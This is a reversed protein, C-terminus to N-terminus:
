STSCRVRNRDCAPCADPWHGKNIHNHWVKAKRIVVGGTPRESKPVLNKSFNRKRRM